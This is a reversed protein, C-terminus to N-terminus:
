VYVVRGYLSPTEYYGYLPMCVYLEYADKSNDNSDDDDDNDDDSNGNYDDDIDNDSNDDNMVNIKIPKSTM